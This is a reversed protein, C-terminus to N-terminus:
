WLLKVPYQSFTADATVLTYGEVVAPAILMRDFPDRHVLPLGALGIVHESRIALESLQNSKQKAIIQALPEQLQLKGIALKIQIEWISATSFWVENAPDGIAQKATPSLKASSSDLWMFAHTDLLLKM